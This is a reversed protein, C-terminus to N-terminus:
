EGKRIPRREPRRRADDDQADNDDNDDDRQKGADDDNKGGGRRHEKLAKIVGEDQTDDKESWEVDYENAIAMIERRLATAEDLMHTYRQLDFGRRLYQAQQRRSVTLSMAAQYSAERRNLLFWLYGILVGALGVLYTVPEMVDWGLDTCFTLWAQAM